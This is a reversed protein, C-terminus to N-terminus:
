SPLAEGRFGYTLINALDTGDIKSTAHRDLALALEDEPIGHGDDQVRILRKGGDAYAVDIRRAGADLANEILEKVASAPREVVEGAAIRNAAAADLQRIPRREHSMKPTDVNM